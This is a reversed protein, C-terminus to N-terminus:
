WDQIQHHLTFSIACGIHYIYEFFNDPILPMTRIFYSWHPQTKFSRPLTRLYIIKEELILVISFYKRTTRRRKGNSSNWMEDSWHDLICLFPESSLGETSWFEIAGDDERLYVWMVFVFWNRWCQIIPPRIFKHNLILGLEKELLYLKQPHAPLFVDKHNQKLSQDAPLLVHM